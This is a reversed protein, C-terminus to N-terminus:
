KHELDRLDQLAKDKDRDLKDKDVTVKLTREGNANRGEAHFWGRYAGIGAVLVLLLVLMGILRTMQTEKLHQEWAEDERDEAILLGIHGSVWHRQVVDAKEESCVHNNFTSRSSRPM